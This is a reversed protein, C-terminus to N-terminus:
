NTIANVPKGHEELYQQLEESSVDAFLDKADAESIEATINTTATTNVGSLVGPDSVSNNVFNELEQDSVKGIGKELVATQAGPKEVPKLYFYTGLAIFGIVAAAAAYRFLRGGFGISVVKAGQKQRVNNLITDPLNEFYGAPVRYTNLIKLDSMLRPLNELEENVFDIARVGAVINESLEGFYGSPASYPMKKESQSLLPSLLELEETSNRTTGAKIRNLIHGALDEFYGEPVTYVPEKPINVAPDAGQKEFTAITLLIRLNLGEFYGDPVAYPMTKDLAAVVPSIERLENLININNEM